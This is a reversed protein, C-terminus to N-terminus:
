NQNLPFQENDAFPKSINKKSKCTVLDMCECDIFRYRGGMCNRNIKENKEVKLLWYKKLMNPIIKKYKLFKIPENSSIIYKQKQIGGNPSCIFLWKAHFICFIWCKIKWALNKKTFFANMQWIKHMKLIFYSPLFVSFTFSVNRKNVKSKIM